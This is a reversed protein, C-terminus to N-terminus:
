TLARVKTSFGGDLLGFVRTRLILSEGVRRSPKISRPMFGAALDVCPRQVSVAPCLLVRKEHWRRLLGM